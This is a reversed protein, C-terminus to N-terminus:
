SLIYTGVYPTKIDSTHQVYRYCKYSQSTGNVTINIIQPALMPVEFNESMIKNINQSAPVCFWFYQEGTNFQIDFSGTYTQKVIKPLSTVLENTATGSAEGTYPSAGYFMPLYANITIRKTVTDGDEEEATITVTLPSTITLDKTFSHSIGDNYEIIEGAINITQKVIPSSGSSPETTFTLRKPSGYEIISTPSYRINISSPLNATLMQKVVQKVPTDVFSTGAPVGGVTINSTVTVKCDCPEGGGGGGGGGGSASSAKIIAEALGAAPINYGRYALSSHFFVPIRNM